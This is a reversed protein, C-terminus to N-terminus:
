EKVSPAGRLLSSGSRMQVGRCCRDPACKGQARDRGWRRPLVASEPRCGTMASGTMRACFRELVTWLPSAGSVMRSPTLKSTPAARRDSDDARRPRALRRQETQEGAEVPGARAFYPEAVGREIAQGLVRARRQPSAPEAEHELRELQQRRESRQFVDHQRELKGAGVVSGPAGALPERADPERCAQRVIWLLEGAALLLADRDRAREAALRLHEHGVLRGTIEIGRGSGFHGVHHKAQIALAARRQQEDRVIRLKRRAAASPMESAPPLSTPSSSAGVAARPM